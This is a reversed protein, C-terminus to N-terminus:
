APFTLILCFSALKAVPVYTEYFDVGYVQTFGKAVLHAKYKEIEGAANKKICLVWKTKVINANTPQEILEWINNAKLNELEM